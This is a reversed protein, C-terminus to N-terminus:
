GFLAPWQPWSVPAGRGRGRGGETPVSWGREPDEAASKSPQVGLEFCMKKLIKFVCFYINIQKLYFCVWDNNEECENKEGTSSM